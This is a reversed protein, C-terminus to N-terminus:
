INENFKPCLNNSTEMLSPRWILSMVLIIKFSDKKFHTSNQLHVRSNITGKISISRAVLFLFGHWQNVTVYDDCNVLPIGKIDQDHM